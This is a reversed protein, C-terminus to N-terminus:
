RGGGDAMSFKGKEPFPSLTVETYRRSDVQAGSKDITQQKNCRYSAGFLLRNKNPHCHCYCSPAHCPSPTIATKFIDGIGIDQMGYM